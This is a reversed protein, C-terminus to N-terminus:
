QQQKGKSWEDADRFLEKDMFNISQKADILTQVIFVGEDTPHVPMSTKPVRNEKCMAHIMEIARDIRQLLPTQKIEEVLRSVEENSV